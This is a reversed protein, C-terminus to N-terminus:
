AKPGALLMTEIRNVATEPDEALEFFSLFRAEAFGHAVQHEFLAVLPAWYRNADV